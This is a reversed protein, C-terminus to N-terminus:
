ASRQRISKIWETVDVEEHTGVLSDFLGLLGNISSPTRRPISRLGALAAIERRDNSDDIERAEESEPVHGARERELHRAWIEAPWELEDECPELSSVYRASERHHKDSEWESYYWHSIEM